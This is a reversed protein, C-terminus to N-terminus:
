LMDTTMSATLTNNNAAHGISRIDMQMTELRMYIGGGSWNSVVCKCLLTKRRISTLSLSDWLATVCCAM